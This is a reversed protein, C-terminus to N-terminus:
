NILKKSFREGDIIYNVKFKVPRLSDKACEIDVKVQIKKGDNIAKAWQNEIEKYQSLNISSSQSVLNDLKGSGGFRDAALHGAHDGPLKGPTKQDYPLREMRKTLQLNDTSFSDIRGRSDTEYYYDFEGAKYRVNPMLKGNENFPMDVITKDTGEIKTETKSIYEGGGGEKGAAPVLSKGAAALDADAAKTVDKFQKGGNQSEYVRGVNGDKATYYNQGKAPDFAETRVIQNLGDTEVYIKGEPISGIADTLAKTQLGSLLRPGQGTKQELKIGTAKYEPTKATATEANNHLTSEGTGTAKSSKGKEQTLALAAADRILEAGDAKRKGAIDRISAKADRVARLLSGQGLNQGVSALDRTNVTAKPKTPQYSVPRGINTLNNLISASGGLAMGSIAGQGGAYAIQGIAQMATALVADAQTKDPHEKLFKEFYAAMESKNKMIAIDSLIQMAETAAEESFETAIQKGTSLLVNKFTREGTSKLIRNLGGLSIREGVFEAAGYAIMEGFQGWGTAGRDKAGLAAHGSANAAMIYPSAPGTLLLIPVNQGLSLGAEAMFKLAPSEIKDILAAQGANAMRITLSENTEPTPDNSGSFLNYASNLLTEGAYLIGPIPNIAYLIKEIDSANAAFEYALYKGYELKHKEFLYNFMADATEFDHKGYLQNITRIEDETFFNVALDVNSYMEPSKGWAWNHTLKNGPEYYGRRELAPDKPTNEVFYSTMLDNMDQPFIESDLGLLKAWKCLREAKEENSGPSKVVIRGGSGTTSFDYDLMFLGPVQKLYNTLSSYILIGKEGREGSVNVVSGPQLCKQIYAELSQELRNLVEDGDKEWSGQASATQGPTAPEIRFDPKISEMKVRDDLYKQLQVYEPSNERVKQAAEEATMGQHYYYLFNNAQKYANQPTAGKSILAQTIENAPKVYYTDINSILADVDYGANKLYERGGKVFATAYSAYGRDFLEKLGINILNRQLTTKKDVNVNDYLGKFGTKEDYNLISEEVAKPLQGNKLREKDEPTDKYEDLFSQPPLGNEMRKLDNPNYIDYSYGMAKWDYPPTKLDDGDKYNPDYLKAIDRQTNSVNEYYKNIAETDFAGSKDLIGLKQMSKKFDFEGAYEPVVSYLRKLAEEPLMDQNEIYIKHRRNNLDNEFKLQNELSSYNSLATWFIRNEATDETSLKDYKGGKLSYVNELFSNFLKDGGTYAAFNIYPVNKSGTGNKMADVVKADVASLGIVWDKNQTSQDINSIQKRNARAVKVAQELGSKATADQKQYQENMRETESGIVTGPITSRAIGRAVANKDVANKLEGVAQTLQNRAQSTFSAYQERAKREQSALSSLRRKKWDAYGAKLENWRDSSLSNPDKLFKIYEEIKFPM